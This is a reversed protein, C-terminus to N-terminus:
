YNPHSIGVSLVLNTTPSRGYKSPTRGAISDPYDKLFEQPLIRKFRLKLFTSM